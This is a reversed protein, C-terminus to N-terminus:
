SQFSTDSQRLLTVEEFSKRGLWRTIEVPVNVNKNDAITKTLAPRDQLYYYCLIIRLTAREGFQAQDLKRADELSEIAGKYDKEEFAAWARIWFNAQAAASSKPYNELLQRFTATM